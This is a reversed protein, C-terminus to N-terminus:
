FGDTSAAPPLYRMEGALGGGDHGFLLHLVTGDPATFAATGHAHLQGRRLPAEALWAPPGYRTTLEFIMQQFEARAFADMALESLRDVDQGLTAFTYGFRGRVAALRGKPLRFILEDDTGGPEAMLATLCFAGEQSLRGAISSFRYAIAAPDVACPALGPFRARVADADAGWPIGLVGSLM